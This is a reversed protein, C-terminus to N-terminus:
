EYALSERVSVRTARIAPLLSGLISLVVIISLWQLAGNWSFQYLISLGGFVAQGMVFAFVQGVPMSLPIAILWALLGLILGEGIFLSAITLSSAGIARMVGIERRREIVNISLTGALGIAGVLAILAALTLLLMSIPSYISEIRIRQREYTNTSGVRLGRASLAERLQSEVRLQTAGDDPRTSISASTSRGLLGVDSAYVPRSVYVSSSSLDFVTGVVIWEIKQSGRRIWFPDGIRVGLKGALEDTLVAAHEDEPLLWRGQMVPLKILQSDPQVGTLFISEGQVDDKGRYATSTESLQMEVQEVNPQAAILAQVEENRVPSQFDIQVKYGLSTNLFAITHSFSEASSMVMIFVVGATVLTIETLVVRGKRRFTNRLTLALPRPLGRWRALLRDLLGTGYRASIGYNSIAERVTLRVGSFVPWLAALVPVLLGVVLQQTVAQNSIRFAADAPVGFAALMGASFYAAVATGLPVAIFVALVGYVLVSSLYLQLMQRTTGGIAKMVGIQPVQQAVVANVTNIVLLLGLGLTLIAMVNLILIFGSVIDQLPHQNPPVIQYFFVPAGMKELQAKLQDVADQATKESFVPVQVRLRSYGSAGFVTEAMQPSAYLPPPGGVAPPLADFDQVVGTIKFEREREDILLTLTGSHPLGFSDEVAINHRDPWAGSLLQITNLKQNTYDPRVTILVDRLAANPAPQWRANLVRLGEINRVGPVRALRAVDDDSVIGSLYITVHAPNTERYSSIMRTPVFDLMGNVMGVAFVGVAISVVALLTRGKSRWLDRLIKRFGIRM